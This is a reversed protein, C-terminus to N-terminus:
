PQYWPSTPIPMPTVPLEKVTDYKKREGKCVICNFANKALKQQFMQCEIAIYGRGVSLASVAKRRM